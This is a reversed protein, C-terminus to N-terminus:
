DLGDMEESENYLFVMELANISGFTRKQYSGWTMYKLFRISKGTQESIEYINGEAIFKEGKYLAYIDNKWDTKPRKPKTMAEEIPIKMKTVRSFLLQSSIGNKEAIKYQERTLGSKKNKRALVDGM